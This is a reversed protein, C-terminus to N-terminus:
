GQTRINRHGVLQAAGLVFPLFCYDDLSWVGHSGAPELMYTRQVCRIVHLYAPYVHLAIDRLHASDEDKSCTSSSASAVGDVSASAEGLVGARGLAFLFMLFSAEHGTGYDIRTANGFSLQWYQGLEAEVASAPAGDGSDSSSSTASATTMIKRLTSATSAELAAFFSRFATNGYRQPQSVPPHEIVLAKVHELAAVIARVPAPKGATADGGPTYDVPHGRAAAAMRGLFRLLAACTPSALWRAVDGPERVTRPMQSRGPAAPTPAGASNASM